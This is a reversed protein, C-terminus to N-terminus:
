MWSATSAAPVVTNQGGQAGVTSQSTKGLEMAGKTTSATNYFPYLRRFVSDIHLVGGEMDYDLGFQAM